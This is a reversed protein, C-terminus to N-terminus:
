TVETASLTGDNAVTIRYQTGNPSSLVLANNLERNTQAVLSAFANNSARRLSDINQKGPAKFPNNISAM